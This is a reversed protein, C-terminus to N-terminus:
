RLVDEREDCPATLFIKRGDGYKAAVEEVSVGRFAWRMPSAGLTPARGLLRRLWEHDPRGLGLLGWRTEEDRALYMRAIWERESDLPERDPVEPDLHLYHHLSVAYRLDYRVSVARARTEDPQVYSGFSSNYTTVDWTIGHDRDGFVLSFQSKAM